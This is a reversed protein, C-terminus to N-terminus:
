VKRLSFIKGPLSRIAGKFELELLLGSIKGTTFGSKNMLGDFDVYSEDKLIRTIIMEDETLAADPIFNIGLPQEPAIEPPKWGTIYEIDEVSELLHARHSKILLNCGNGGMRDINGPVAFVDRNYQNGFDATIMAGGKRSSEVVVIVQSLGAVIRNREVFNAPSIKSNHHYETLIAGGTDLIEAALNAHEAPYITEFGHGVVAWTILKNKIAAEHAAADIGFALGSVVIADPHRRSIQEVIDACFEKSGRSANRTGVISIKKRAKFLPKGKFYLLLPADENEKLIAPYDTDWYSIFGIENNDAYLLEDAADELAQNRSKIIKNVAYEGIGPVKKLVASKETFVAELSGTYAVMKKATICGLGPIRSIAIKIIDESIVTM